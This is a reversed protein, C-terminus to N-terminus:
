SCELLLKEIKIINRKKGSELIQEASATFYRHNLMFQKQMSYWEKDQYVKGLSEWEKRLHNSYEIFTDEGLYFMDADCIIMELQGKPTQPMKTALILSCIYETQNEEYGYLPLLENALRVSEDEHGEYTNVLGLDHLLGATQVLISDEESIGEMEALLKTASYVIETHEVSHYYYAQSLGTKFKDLVIDKLSNLKTCM